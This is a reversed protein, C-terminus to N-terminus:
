RGASSRGSESLALLRSREHVSLEAVRELGEKLRFNRLEVRLRENEAQLSLVKQLSENERARAENERVQAESRQDAVEAEAARVAAILRRFVKVTRQDKPLANGDDLTLGVKELGKDLASM